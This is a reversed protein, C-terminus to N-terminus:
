DSIKKRQLDLIKGIQVGTSTLLEPANKLADELPMPKNIISLLLSFGNKYLKKYGEGLTGAVGIVPKGYKAAIQAIGFPAKGNLTQADMRGEATIVFDSAAIRDELNLVESVIKLGNSLKANCFVMLGAGLGGAAGAGPITEIETGFQNRLTAAYHVLNKDLIEVMEPTAGKQPGYVASAGNVGTLPNSVDCAVVIEPLNKRFDTIDIVNLNGLSGGGAPLEKGEIDRFKAGLAQAMGAGGDNTASGGIGIVIKNCGHDAALGILEGTGYTTTILPNREEPAILELGSASAMEIFATKGDPSFGIAAKVPRMLADNVKFEKRYGGTGLIIADVFNEGGDSIPALDLEADQIVKKIGEKLCEAVKDASLSEKFSDPAILIRYM